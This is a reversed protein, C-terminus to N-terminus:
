NNWSGVWRDREEDLYVDVSKKEGDCLGTLLWWSVDLALSVSYPLAAERSFPDVPVRTSCPSRHLLEITYGSRPATPSPRRHHM